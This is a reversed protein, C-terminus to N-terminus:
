YIQPINCCVFRLAFKAGCKEATLLSHSSSSSSSSALALWHFVCCKCTIRRVGLSRFPAVAACPIMDSRMLDYQASASGEGIRGPIM